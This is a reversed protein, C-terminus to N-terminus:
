RFFPYFFSYINCFTYTIGPSSKQFDIRGSIAQRVPEMYRYFIRDEFTEKLALEKEGDEFLKLAREEFADPANNPNIPKLSTMHFTLLGDDEFLSSIERTMLAPNKLTLVVGDTTTLDPKDLYPNSIVNKKKEFAFM